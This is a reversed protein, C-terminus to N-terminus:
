PKVGDKKNKQKLLDFSYKDYGLSETIFEWSVGSNVLKEIMEIKGSIEGEKRGEKRGEEKGEEKAAYLESIKNKLAKERLEAEIRIEKNNSLHALYDFAEYILPNSYQAKKM